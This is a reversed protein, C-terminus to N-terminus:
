VLRHATQEQHKGMVGGDDNLAVATGGQGQMARQRDSHEDMVSRVRDMVAQTNHKQMASMSLVDDFRILREPLM